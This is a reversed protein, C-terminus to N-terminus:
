SGEAANLSDEIEQARNQCAQLTKLKESGDPVTEGLLLWGSGFHDQTARYELHRGEDTSRSRAVMGGILDPDDEWVLTRDHKPM